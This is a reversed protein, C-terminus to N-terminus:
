TFCNKNKLTISQINEICNNCILKENYINLDKSNNCFCCTEEYKELIIKNNDTVFIEMPTHEIIEFRDRIEKPIVIRGLEDVRRIM